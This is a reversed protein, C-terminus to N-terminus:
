ISFTFVCAWLLCDCIGETQFFLALCPGVKYVDHHGIVSDFLTYLDNLLDVIEIPECLASMTTFGIIDSFYITVEDFYEPEVSAGRILTEAVPLPLMQSLLRDTKQKEAELEETREQILEELNSSYNELMRLMSDMINTQKGKNITKFQEFIKDFTPRRNPVESWCQKM